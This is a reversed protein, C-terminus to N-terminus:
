SSCYRCVGKLTTESMSISYGEPATIKPAVIGDLCFTNCCEECIFHVHNHIHHHAECESCLAFRLHNDKDPVKHILGNKEFTELARYVTVKDKSTEVQSRIEDVTLSTQSEVFLSILEARFSTKRLGYKELLQGSKNEPDM